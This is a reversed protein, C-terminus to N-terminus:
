IYDLLSVSNLITTGISYSAQLATQANALETAAKTIDVEELDVKNETLKVITDENIASTSDLKAVKASVIGQSNIIKDSSSQIIGLKERIKEYDLEDANLLVDLDEMESFFTKDDALSGFIEEGTFNYTFTTDESITLKREGGEKSSGQYVIKGDDDFVYAPEQTYTGAFIYSDLYKTNMKDMITAVKEKIEVSLAKASSPTTTANAAEVVLANISSLEDAVAGLTDYAMNMENTAAQINSQYIDMQALKDNLKLVKTADGVNQSVQTFNKNSAIKNMIDLYTQYANGMSNTAINTITSTSVRM